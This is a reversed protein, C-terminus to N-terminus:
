ATRPSWAARGNRILAAAESAPISQAGRHELARGIASIVLPSVVVLLVIAAVMLRTLPPTLQARRRKM